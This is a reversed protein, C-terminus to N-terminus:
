PCDVSFAMRNGAENFELDQALGRLLAIGRGFPRPSPDAGSALWARWDFGPGPDEVEAQIRRIACLPDGEEHLLTIAFRVAGTEPRALARKRHQEFAEFGQTKIASDLGLLGHEVANTLAEHLLMAFLQTHGHDVKFGMILSLVRPQVDRLSHCRPDLHFDAQFAPILPRFPRAALIDERRELSGPAPVEWLAWTLDDGAAEGQAIAAVLNRIAACHQDHPLAAPAQLYRACIEEPTTRDGLGDSFAFIRDSRSSAM